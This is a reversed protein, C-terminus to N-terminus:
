KDPKYSQLKFTGEWIQDRIGNEKSPILDIMRRLKEKRQDRTMSHLELMNVKCNLLYDVFAEHRRVISLERHHARRDKVNTIWTPQDGQRTIRSNHKTILFDDADLNNEGTIVDLILCLDKYVAYHGPTLPLQYRHKLVGSKRLKQIGSMVIGTGFMMKYIGLGKKAFPSPEYLVM